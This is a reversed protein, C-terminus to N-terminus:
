QCWSVPDTRRSPDIQRDTRNDDAPRLPCEGM